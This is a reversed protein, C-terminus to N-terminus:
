FFMSKLGLRKALRVLNARDVQLAKAAASWNGQAQDLAQVIRQRQFQETSQKLGLESGSEVPPIQTSLADTEVEVLDGLQAATISIIASKASARARLAARGILHELERINGPWDYRTLQELLAPDLVLQQLGLKRRLQETFYGALLVVDGQRERLPPVVIPYVSLRHYLDARFRGAEVEDKLIRNTAALVRVDM